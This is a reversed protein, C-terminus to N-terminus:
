NRIQNTDIQKFDDSVIRFLLLLLLCFFWCISHVKNDPMWEFVNVPASQYLYVACMVGCSRCDFTRSQLTGLSPNITSQLQMYKACQWTCCVDCQSNRWFRISFKSRTFLLATQVSKCCVCVCLLHFHHQSSQSWKVGPNAYDCKGHSVCVCRSRSSKCQFPDGNFICLM